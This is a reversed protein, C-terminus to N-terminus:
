DRAPQVGASELVVLNTDLLRARSDGASVPERIEARVQASAHRVIESLADVVTPDFQTASNACLEELARRTSMAKRYSRTTTMASFADCASIIRAELPIQEGELGDPYGTGDWREHSSRVIRGVERMIGGIRELLKQGEITHTKIIAWEEEDLAGPKNIIEKPVAIKGVDHLLAAFEVNRCRRSDLQLKRAVEVALRVVGRSHEGTYSDDAEVVDGLLLATGQYADNLEVLQTLRTSREQSLTRLVVFLPMILLVAWQHNRTAALAVLYGVPSLAVDMIYVLRMEEVLEPVTLGDVLHERVASASFDFVLQALLALALIGGAGEPDHTGALVLVLSPGVAFWSNGPATLIRSLPVRGNLIEPAMAVMLAVAVLAPVLAPPVAFLMPVFIVQTPLTYGLGVDFRVHVSAALAIVYLGAVLPSFAQERGGLLVLLAAAALFGVAVKLEGRFETTSMPQGRLALSARARDAESMTQTQGSM